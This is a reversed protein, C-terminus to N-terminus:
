MGDNDTITLTFNMLSGINCAAAVDNTCSSLSFTITESDENVDDNIIFVNGSATNGGPDSSITTTVGSYDSEVATYNYVFALITALTYKKIM